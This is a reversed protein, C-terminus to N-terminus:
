SIEQLTFPPELNGSVFREEQKRRLLMLEKEAEEIEDLEDTKEAM